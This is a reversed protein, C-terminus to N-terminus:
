WNKEVYVKRMKKQENNVKKLVDREEQELAELLREADEKSIGEKEESEQQQQEKPQEQQENGKDQQQDQPREENQKQQDTNNNQQDNNDQKDKQNQKDQNQEQQNQQNKQQQQNQQQQQTYKKNALILNHKADMDSPNIRLSNKYAEAAKGFEEKQFHANGLNYYYKALKEKDKTEAILNEYKTISSEYKERKYLTNALNYNAMGSENNEDLAKRYRREAGSYKGDDYKENGEKLYKRESQAFTMAPLLIAIIM